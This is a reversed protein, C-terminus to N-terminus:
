SLEKTPQNSTTSGFNFSSTFNPCLVLIDFITWESPKCYFDAM